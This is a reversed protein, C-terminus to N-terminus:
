LPNQRSFSTKGSKRAFSRSFRLFIMDPSNFSSEFASDSARRARMPASFITFPCFFFMCFFFCVGEKLYISIYIYIYIYIQPQFEWGLFHMKKGWSNKLVIYSKWICYTELETKEITHPMILLQKGCIKGTLYGPQQYYIYMDRTKM